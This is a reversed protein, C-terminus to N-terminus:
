VCLSFKALDVEPAPLLEIPVYCEQTRRWSCKVPRAFIILHLFNNDKNEVELSSTRELAIREAQPLLNFYVAQSLIKGWHGHNNLYLELITPRRQDHLLMCICWVNIVPHLRRYRRPKM